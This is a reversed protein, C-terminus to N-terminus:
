YLRFLFFKRDVVGRLSARFSKIKANFSEASANTDRNIFFNLIEDYHEYVTAAITNFSKFDSESVQNYWRALSLRAAGKITNKNFIMSLSHILSYGQKIDPYEEFLINARQKQKVTWKDASKFLLYRSRALLQKRTDGNEYVLPISEKQALKAEERHETEANIADRRHAIRMEQLADYALKRVHFRDITHRADPFCRRVIKRMSEAMDLTVEEVMDLKEQPIKELAEIVKESSTGEVLAVLAGKKGKAAKNTVITYLEGNSLSTEDISLNKGINEPFVLWEEAHEKESWNTYDSLHEKYHRELQIGNVHYYKELSQAAIPYTDL